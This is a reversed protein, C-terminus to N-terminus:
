GVRFPVFEFIKPHELARLDKNRLEAEVAM